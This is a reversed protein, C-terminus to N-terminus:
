HLLGQNPNGNVVAEFCPTCYLKGQYPVAREKLVQQGCGPCSAYAPALETTQPGSITEELDFLDQPRVSFLKQVRTDLLQQFDVVEDLTIRNSRAKEEFEGYKHEDGFFQAKMKLKFRKGTERAALTYNHKGVDFIRLCQNGVTVGLLVQLADLASTSNEAIVSIRGRPQEGAFLIEQAYECAKMGIVLEPCLHGHFDVVRKVTMNVLMGVEDKHLLCKELAARCFDRDPKKPYPIRSVPHPNRSACHLKCSYNLGNAHCTRM